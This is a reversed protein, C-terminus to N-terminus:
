VAYGSRRLVRRVEHELEQSVMVGFRVELEQRAATYLAIAKEITDPTEEVGMPRLLHASMKAFEQEVLEDAGKSHKPALWLIWDWFHHDIAPLTRAGVEWPPELEHKKDFLLDVKAPGRLILMYTEKRSLRDWQQALPRLPAVLVPLDRAVVEFNDTQVEFDWDSLDGADGRQRSGVLRVARIAPHKGLAAIVQPAVDMKRTCRVWTGLRGTATTGPAYM